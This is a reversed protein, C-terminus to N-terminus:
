CCKWSEVTEVSTLQLVAPSAVSNFSISSRHFLRHPSVPGSSGTSWLGETTACVTSSDSAEATSAAAREGGM